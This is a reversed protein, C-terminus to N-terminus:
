LLPEVVVRFGIDGRRATPLEAPIMTCRQSDPDTNWSGGLVDKRNDKDTIFEAKGDTMKLTFNTDRSWEYVNGIIDYLGFANGTKEGVLHSSGLANGNHYAYAELKSADRTGYPWEANMGAQCGRQYQPTSPL